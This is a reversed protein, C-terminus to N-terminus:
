AANLMSNLNATFISNWSNMLKGHGDLSQINTCKPSFHILRAAALTPVGRKPGLIALLPKHDTILTFHRAYLYHHFKKLGFVLSLAEKQLQPYNSESSTLMRSGFAIPMESGDDMVHSLVAGIGYVLADCALVPPSPCWLSNFIDRFVVSSPSEYICCEPTWIFPM